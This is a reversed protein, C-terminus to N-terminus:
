GAPSRRDGPWYSVRDADQEEANMAFTDSEGPNRSSAIHLMVNDELNQLGYRDATRALIVAAILKPVFRATQRPLKGSRALQWFSDSGARQVARAVAAPGANYAALALYWDGHDIFLDKLHRAAAITSLILDKRQDEKSSVVLGYNRGTQKMFQWMGIAGMSSRAEKRFGSEIMALNLLDRPVGEDEFIRSLLVYNQNRRALGERVFSADRRLM